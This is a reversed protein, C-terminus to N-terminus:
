EIELYYCNEDSMSGPKESSCVCDYFLEQPLDDHVSDSNLLEDFGYDKFWEFFVEAQENNAFQILVRDGARKKSM